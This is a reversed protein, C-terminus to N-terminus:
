AEAYPTSADINATRLEAGPHRPVEFMRLEASFTDIVLAAIHAKLAGWLMAETLTQLVYMAPPSDRGDPDPNKRDRDFIPRAIVKCQM